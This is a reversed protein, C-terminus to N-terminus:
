GKKNTEDAFVKSKVNKKINHSRSNSALRDSYNAKRKRLRATRRNNLTAHALTAHAIILRIRTSDIKARPTKSLHLTPKTSGGLMKANKYTATKKYSYRM